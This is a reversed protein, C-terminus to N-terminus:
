PTQRTELTYGGEGSGTAVVRYCGANLTTTIQADAPKMYGAGSDDDEALLIGGADYLYLYPDIVLESHNGRMEITLTTTSDLALRYLDYEYSDFREDTDTLSGTISGYVPLAPLSSCSISPDSPHITTQNEIEVTYSVSGGEEELIVDYESIALRYCQGSLTHGGGGEEVGDEWDPVATWWIFDGNGEYLSMELGRRSALLIEVKTEEATRIGYLDHLDSGYRDDDMTITGATVSGVPLSPLDECSLAPDSPVVCTPLSAPDYAHPEFRRDFLTEYHREDMPGRLYIDHGDRYVEVEFTGTTGDRQLMIHHSVIGGSEVRRVDVVDYGFREYCHPASHLGLYMDVRTESINVFAESGGHYWSGNIDVPPAPETPECAAILALLALVSWKPLRCGGPDSSLRSPHHSTGSM